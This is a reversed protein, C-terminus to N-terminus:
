ALRIFDLYNLVIQRHMVVLSIILFGAKKRSTIKTNQRNTKGLPAAPFIRAQTTLAIEEELAALKAELEPAACDRHGLNSMERALVQYAETISLDQLDPAPEDCDPADAQVVNSAAPTDQRGGFLLPRSYFGAVYMALMAMLALVYGVRVRKRAPEPSSQDTAREAQEQDHNSTMMSRHMSGDSHLSTCYM